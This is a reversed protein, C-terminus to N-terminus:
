GGPRVSGFNDRAWDDGAFPTVSLSGGGFRLGWSSGAIEILVAAEVPMAGGMSAFGQADFSEAEAHVIKLTTRGEDYVVQTTVEVDRLDLLAVALDPVKKEIPHLDLLPDLRTMKLGVTLRAKGPKARGDGLEADLRWPKGPLAGAHKAKAEVDGELNALVKHRLDGRALLRVNVDGDFRVGPQRADIKSKVGLNAMADGNQELKFHLAAGGQGRITLAELGQEEGLDLSPVAVHVHADVKPGNPRELLSPIDIGGDIDMKTLRVLPWDGYRAEGLARVSGRTRGEAHKAAVLLQEAEARVGDLRVELGKVVTVVYSGDRLKADALGMDLMVLGSGAVTNEDLDAMNTIADTGRLPLTLALEVVLGDLLKPIDPEAISWTPMHAAVSASFAESVTSGAVDLQGPAFDLRTTPVEITQETFLVFGGELDLDGQYRGRDIWVNKLSVDIGQMDVNWNNSVDGDSMKGKVPAPLPGWEPFNALGSPAESPLEGERYRRRLRFDFGHGEVRTFTIIRDKMPFPDYDAEVEDVDFYVEVPGERVWMRLGEVHVSFPRWSYGSEIEVDIIEQKASLWTHFGTWNLLLNVAGLYTVYLGVASWMVVKLTKRAIRGARSWGGPKPDEDQQPGDESPPPADSPEIM